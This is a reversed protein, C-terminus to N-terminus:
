ESAFFFILEVKRLWSYGILRRERAKLEIVIM